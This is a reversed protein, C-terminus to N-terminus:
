SARCSTPSPRPRGRRRRPVPLRHGAARATIRAAPQYDRSTPRARHRHRAPLGRGGQRQRRGARREATTFSLFRTVYLQSTTRPSRWAARSSTASPLRRRQLRSHRLDVNGLIARRAAGLRDGHDHGPRQQRRLRAPRRALDRRELARRRHDARRRARGDDPSAQSSPREDLIRLVRSRAAPPTPSSPTATARSRDRHQAARRRGPDDRAGRQGRHRHGHRQRRRPQGGLAARRRAGARDPQLLDPRARRDRAPGRRGGALVGGAASARGRSRLTTM